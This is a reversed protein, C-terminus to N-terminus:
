EGGIHWTVEMCPDRPVSDVWEFGDHTVPFYVRTASWATFGEGKTNGYCYSDDFKTDLGEDDLTCSIIEGDDQVLDMAKKILERWTTNMTAEDEENEWFGFPPTALDRM